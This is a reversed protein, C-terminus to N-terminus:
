SVASKIRRGRPLPDLSTMEAHDPLGRIPISGLQEIVGDEARIGHLTYYKSDQNTILMNSYGYGIETVSRPNSLDARWITGDQTLIHFGKVSGAGSSCCCKIYSGLETSDTIVSNTRINYLMNENWIAHDDLLRFMGLQDPPTDIIRIRKLADTPSHITVELYIREYLYSSYSHQMNGPAYEGSKILKQYQMLVDTRIYYLAMNESLAYQGNIAIFRDGPGGLVVSSQPHSYVVFMLKKDDTLLVCWMTTLYADVINTVHRSGIQAMNVVMRNKNSYAAFRTDFIVMSDYLTSRVMSIPENIGSIDLEQANGVAEDSSFSYANHEVCYVKGDSVFAM